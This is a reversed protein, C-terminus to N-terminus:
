WAPTQPAGFPLPMEQGNLTLKGDKLGAVLKYNNADAETLLQMVVLMQLQLEADDNAQKQLQALEAQSLEESNAQATALLSDYAQSIAVQKLLNKGISVEAQAQLASLLVATDLATAKTGDLRVNLSGEFNGKPTTVSLPTIAIEPSKALFQPILEMAQSMLMMGMMPTEAQGEMQKLTTQLALLAEANLRRFDINGVFGIDLPEGMTLEKPLVLKGIKTQLTYNILKNPEESATEESAIEESKEDSDAKDQEESAIEEGASTIALGELSITAGAESFYFHGVKFLWKGLELGKSSKKSNFGLVLAQMNLQDDQERLNFTPLSVALQTPELNADFAGSFTSKELSAIFNDPGEVMLGTVNLATTLNDFQDTFSFQGTLGKWDILGGGETEPVKRQYPPFVLDSNGAGNSEVNTKISVKPLQGLVQTVDAPLMWDLETDITVPKQQKALHKAFNDKLAQLFVFPNGELLKVPIEVTEKAVPTGGNFRHQLTFRFQEEPEAATSAEASDANEELQEWWPSPATPAEVRIFPPTIPEAPLPLSLTIGGALLSTTTLQLVKNM